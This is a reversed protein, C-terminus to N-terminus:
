LLKLRIQKQTEADLKEIEVDYAKALDNVTQEYIKKQIGIEKLGRTNGETALVIKNFAEEVGVGMKDGSDEALAFLLVQKELSVGLADAQNSLKLLSADNVTGATAQRFNQLDGETGRFAARLNELRSGELGLQIIAEGARKVMYIFGLVAATNFLGTTSKAPKEQEGRFTRLANEAKDLSSKTAELRELPMNM